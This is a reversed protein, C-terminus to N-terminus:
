KDLHVDVQSFPITMGAEELAYKGCELMKWRLPWYDDKRCYFRVGLDVSSTNLASVFVHVDEDHEKIRRDESMVLNRLVEKATKIDDKYSISFLLDMMREDSNTVNTMSANVLTGNPIIITKKDITMLKTYFVSIESVIGENKNTDEIIYDGVKFPHLILILVGGILNSLSGQFALAATVGISAIAATISATSVGFLGLIVVILLGYIVYKLVSDIFQIAGTDTAHRILARSVCKRLFSGFKLGVIWIIVSFVACWFFSLIGTLSGDLFSKLPGDSLDKLLNDVLIESM